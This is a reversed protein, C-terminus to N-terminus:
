DKIRRVARYLGYCMGAGTLTLLVVGLLGVLVVLFRQSYILDDM